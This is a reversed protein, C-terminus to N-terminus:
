FVPVIMFSYSYSNSLLKYEDHTHAGWSTDGGVGMQKFDINVSTLDRTQVDITHRNKVVDGARQRGDTREISEFDEMISHHASFDVTPIGYIKVGKGEMNNLSMWRVDSKNGNEQPRIYEWNFDAVSGSYIGIKAGTKRDWYNEYPGRGYWSILDFDKTLQVNLGVRPVDPLDTKVKKFTNDLKMSGDGSITYKTQFTAIKNTEEDLLDFAISVIAQKNKVEGKVEAVKRNKSVYRWVRCRKHLNNGFDNDIPARWFNPVFGNKDKIINQGGKFSLETLIGSTKDFIAKVQDNTVEIIADTDTLTLDQNSAALSITKPNNLIFQEWAVEHDKPVLGKEEKTLASITLVLERTPEIDKPKDVKLVGKAAPAVAVEEITGELVVEGDATYAYMFTFESLNTFDFYNVVEYGTSTQRFKINQYVKKVEWLAPKVGRDPNVLGNLCFNGDSPVDEPGYDGGYAWYTEGTETKKVLGQDVWDWIFGGQLVPYAEIVDWYDQLNGVSNGMAHAYECLIFPRDKKTQGYKELRGIGAYMPAVIDTNRNIGAQEFLVMRTTDKRKLWDYADYFVEGNGCENGMSWLIVSPINKDREFMNQVRDMHAAKWEPLYAVHKTKDFRGQNTAGMGHSEINAEDVVYIGYRNCLKYFAEPQPYHSTRVANINFRKMTQIDKLLTAEDVYHGTVDHHEHLNVGKVLVAKGNILLQGEKIEVNRFGVETGIREMVGEKEDMLSIVLQYLYPTEANWSTVNKLIQEFHLTQTEKKSSVLQEENFVENDQADFLQVQVSVEGKTENQVAVDVTYKGDKYDNILHAKSWYDKVQASSRALLYVDRTIGSLRWFDQDEIYSADSWRYVEVALQNAGEMLYESINFVAPTKSDESYGVKEGNVWVYMASSVAGFHLYVDQSLLEKSVKFETRYSGVPNYDPQITPPTKEHPYKVNTYIPIDYGQTEWNGPVRIDTWDSIDYDTKFFYFPRESPNKALHFKWDGSLSTYFPSDEPKDAVVQDRTQYPIFYARAPEKNIRFVEPNEWNKLEPEEFAVGEYKHTTTCGVFLMFPLLLHTLKLPIRHFSKETLFGMGFQGRLGRFPLRAGGKLPRLHGKLCILFRKMDLKLTSKHEIKTKVPHRYNLKM